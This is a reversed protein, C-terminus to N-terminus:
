KKKIGKATQKMKVFGNYAQLMTGDFMDLHTRIFDKLNTCMFVKGEPSKIVWYKANPHLEGTHEAAYEARKKKLYKWHTIIFVMRM